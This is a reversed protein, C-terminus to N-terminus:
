RDGRYRDRLLHFDGFFFEGHELRSVEDILKNQLFQALEINRRRFAGVIVFEHAAGKQVGNAYQRGRIFDASEDGILGCGFSVSQDVFQKLSGLEDIEPTM